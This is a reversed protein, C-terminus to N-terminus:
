VARRIQARRTVAWSKDADVAIVEYTLGGHVVRMAADITQDYPVTLTFDYEATQRGAMTAESQRVPDVRCPVSTYTSAWTPVTEGMADTSNTRTQITCSDPLVSAAAARAHVLVANLDVM